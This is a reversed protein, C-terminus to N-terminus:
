LPELSYGRLTALVRLRQGRVEMQSDVRVPGVGPCYTTAVHRGSESSQETVVVCADFSGAPCEIHQDVATVEAQTDMGGPWKSGLAIPAHLLYTGGDQRRIGDPMLTYRLVSQGSQVEVAGGQVQLVRSTALV